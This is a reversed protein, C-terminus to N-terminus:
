KLKNTNSWVPQDTVDCAVYELINLEKLSIFSSNEEGHQRRNGAEEETRKVHKDVEPDFVPAAVLTHTSRM